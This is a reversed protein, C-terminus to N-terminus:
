PKEQLARPRHCVCTCAHTNPCQACNGFECAPTYVFTAPGLLTSLLDVVQDRTAASNGVFQITMADVAAICKALMRREATRVAECICWQHCHICFQGYQMSCYGHEPTEEDCPNSLGCLPDHASVPSDSVSYSM